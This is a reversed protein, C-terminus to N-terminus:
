TSAQIFRKAGSTSRSIVRRAAFPCPRRRRDVDRELSASDRGVARVRGGRGAARDHVRETLVSTNHSIVPPHEACARARASM